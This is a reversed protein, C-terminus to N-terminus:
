QFLGGRQDNALESARWCAPMSRSVWDGDGVTSISRSGSVPSGVTGEALGVRDRDQLQGEESGDRAEGVLVTDTPDAVRHGEVGRGAGGADVLAVANGALHHRGVMGEPLGALLGDAGRQHEARGPGGDFLGLAGQGVM